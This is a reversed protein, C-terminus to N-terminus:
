INIDYNGKCTDLLKPPLHEFTMHSKFVRPKDVPMKEAFAIPDLVYPPKVAEAEQEPTAPAVSTIELFPIRESARKKKVTALDLDNM